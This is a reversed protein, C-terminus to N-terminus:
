AALKVVEWARFNKKRGDVVRSTSYEHLRYPLRSGELWTALVDYRKCLRGDHRINLREILPERDHATLIPKGVISDLYEALNRMKDETELVKYDDRHLLRAIFKIYGYEGLQLMEHYTEASQMIHAYRLENIQKSFLQKTSGTTEPADVILGSDDNRRGNANSYHVAGKTLFSKVTKADDCLKKLIGGIQSNTRAHIYLNAYDAETVYRKRGLCQIISEPDVVDIVIETLSEDKLNVGTDLAKTAILLTCDFREAELMESVSDDDMYQAYDQNYSSCLFLGQDKYRQYLEFAKKASQVFFLGKHGSSIIQQALTNLQNDQWFFTLCKIHPFGYHLYYEVVPIKKWSFYWEIGEPTASMFVKIAKTQAMVWGFSTDTRHNFSADSMYYHAEDCVIMDWEGFDTILNALRAELAQYTMFTITDDGQMEAEFQQITRVRPLLYLCKKGSEKLFDHLTHKVLYSKGSGTDAAVMIIMGPVWERIEAPTILDSVRKKQSDPKTYIIRM